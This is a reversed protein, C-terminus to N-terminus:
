GWEEGLEDLAEQAMNVCGAQPPTENAIRRLAEIAVEYSARYGRVLARLTSANSQDPLM